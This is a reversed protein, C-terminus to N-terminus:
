FYYSQYGVGPTDDQEDEAPLPTLSNQRRDPSTTSGPLTFGLAHVEEEGWSNEIVDSSRLKSKKVKKRKSKKEKKIYSIGSVPDLEGDSSTIFLSPVHHPLSSELAKPHQSADDKSENDAELNMNPAEIMKSGDNLQNTSDVSTSAALLQGSKANQNTDTETTNERESVHENDDGKVGKQKPDSTIEIQSAVAVVDAYPPEEQAINGAINHPQTTIDDNVNRPYANMRPKPYNGVYTADPNIEPEYTLGNNFPRPHQYIQNGDTLGDNVDDNIQVGTSTGENIDKEQTTSWGTRSGLRTSGCEGDGIFDTSPAVM